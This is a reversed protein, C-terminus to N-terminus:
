ADPDDDATMDRTVHRLAKGVPVYGTEYLRRYRRQRGGDPYMTTGANRYSHGINVLCQLSPIVGAGLGALLSAGVATAEEIEPVICRCGTVDAKIQVWPGNAAGGGVVILEDIPGNTLCEAARRIAESEYATGELVAKLVHARDHSDDLGVFAGRVDDDSHVGGSGRLYPYFLIGTPGERASQFSGPKEDSPVPAGGIVGTLWAIAGGASRTGGLWCFRNSLVHPVIKLGSEFGKPGLEPSDLVGLMSEATGVSDVVSGPNVMGVALAACIHDHGSVAVPAGVPLGTCSAADLSITGGPEGAPLVLPFNDTTLGFHRVWADDWAGDELSYAYTRAALTPDTVMSGTLRFVIYDAVSLWVSHETVSPDRERLWLMKSLGYKFSPQLGSRRFLRRPEDACAILRAQESSRQDYWPVIESRPEGSRIDVLLGAEAMSAVGVCTVAGLNSLSALDRIGSMVTAWLTEPPHFTLGRDDHELPTPQRVVSALLGEDDCVVVKCQSTGVDVGLLSLTWPEKTSGPACRDEIFFVTHGM